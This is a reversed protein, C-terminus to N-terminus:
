EVASTQLPTRDAEGACQERVASSTTASQAPRALATARYAALQLGNFHTNADEIDIFSYLPHGGVHVASPEGKMAYWALMAAVLVVAVSTVVLLPLVLHPSRYRLKALFGDDSKDDNMASSYSTSEGGSLLGVGRDDSSSM